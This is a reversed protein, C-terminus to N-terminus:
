VTNQEFLRDLDVAILQQAGLDQQIEIQQVFLGTFDLALEGIIGIGVDLLRLAGGLDAGAGLGAVAAGDGHGQIRLLDVNEVLFGLLGDDVSLLM